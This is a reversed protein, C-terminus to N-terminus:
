GETISTALIVMLHNDIQQKLLEFDPLPTIAHQVTKAQSVPTLMFGEEDSGPPLAMSNKLARRAPSLKEVTLRDGPERVRLNQTNIERV